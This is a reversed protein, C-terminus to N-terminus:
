FMTENCFPICATSDAMAPYGGCSMVFVAKAFVCFLQQRFVPLRVSGGAVQVRWLQCIGGSFCPSSAGLAARFLREPFLNVEADGHSAIALRGLALMFLFSEVASLLVFADTPMEGETRSVVWQMATYIVLMPLIGNLLQRPLLRLATKHTYEENLARGFAFCLLLWGILSGVMKTFFVETEGLLSGKILAGLASVMTPCVAMAFISLYLWVAGRGCFFSFFKKM